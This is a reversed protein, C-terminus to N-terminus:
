DGDPNLPLGREKRKQIILADINGIFEETPPENVNFYQSVMPTQSKGSRTLYVKVVQDIAKARIESDTSSLDEDLKVLVKQYLNLLTRDNQSFLQNLIRYVEMSVVSNPDSILHYIRSESLGTREAVISIPYGRAVMMAIKIHRAQVRGKTKGIQIQSNPTPFTGASQTDM